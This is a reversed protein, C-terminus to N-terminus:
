ARTGQASFSHDPDPFARTRVDAAYAAVAAEADRGLEAYRKVFKPRFDTFLGLVDDIVLVQGDCDAGAGIGITPVAIRRTITAGLEAPIKELVVSFAGADALAVADALIRDGDAGRGQVKYGGLANVAQPTLGVHGMVPIGRRVLFAVTEAMHQGGELKVAHCGTEAMLRAANRMAQAPSEEYSGFPMDVVMCAHDLGRAVAQGHLIMMEMTVGLTSPLGHLVMGVSDGVLVLDCDRDVQRAVPTTYATLCVIPTAGKRARIDQPTLRAKRDPTASM